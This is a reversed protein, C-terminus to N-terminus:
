EMAHGAVVFDLRLDHATNGATAQGKLQVIWWDQDANYRMTPINEGDIDVKQLRLLAPHSSEAAEASLELMQKVDMPESSKDADAPVLLLFDRTPSTGEHKGDVPQKGYRLTNVGRGIDQDRFDSGKRKFRLVGILQGPKFPYLVESTGKFDAAVPWDRCLWIQCITRKEGRIVAVGQESVQDLIDESLADSPPSEELIEVRHEAAVAASVMTISLVFFVVNRIAMLSVSM